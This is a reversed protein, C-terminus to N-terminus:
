EEDTRMRTMRGTMLGPSPTSSHRTRPPMHAPPRVHLNDIPRPPLDPPEYTRYGSKCRGCGKAGYDRGTPLWGSVFLLRITNLWLGLDCTVRRIDLPHEARM